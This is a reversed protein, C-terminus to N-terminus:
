KFQGITVTDKLFGPFAAVKVLVCIICPKEIDMVGDLVSMSIKVLGSDYVFKKVSLESVKPSSSM